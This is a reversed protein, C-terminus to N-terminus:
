GNLLKTRFVPNITFPVKETGAQVRCDRLDVTPAGLGDHLVELLREADADQLGQGLRLVQLPAAARVTEAAAEGALWAQLRGVTGNPHRARQEM